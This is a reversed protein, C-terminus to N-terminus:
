KKFAVAPNGFVVAGAGINEIVVSGAGIRAGKGIKIGSVIIAGAGIFAGEEIVAHSNVVAGAGIEAYDNVVADADVVSNAGLICYNGVSAFAGVVAMAGIINGHGLGADESTYATKHIANIGIVEYKEKLEEALRKRDEKNRIAICAETKEGLIGLVHEDDTTGLVTVTGIETRQLEEKDDLFGYILVENQNLIDYATKGLTGAGFVVVPNEM